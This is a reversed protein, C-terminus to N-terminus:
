TKPLPIGVDELAAEVVAMDWGHGSIEDVIQRPPKDRIEDPHQRLFTKLVELNYLQHKTMRWRMPQLEQKKNLFFAAV